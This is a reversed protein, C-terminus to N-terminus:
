LVGLTKISRAYKSLIKDVVINGTGEFAQKDFQIKFQDTNYSTAYRKYYELRGCAIDDTLLEAARVIDQPIMKYGSEVIITYDFTKPFGRYYYDIANTDAASIPIIISAGQNRNITGSYYQQIATGDATIEFTREYNDPNAADYVLTNNEYVKLIKKADIWLPLYDAGVGSTEIVQKRYYFGDDIVSDIIARAIEENRAYDAIESKTTGKTNPNVYPRVVSYYYENDYVQVEYEGDYKSPLDVNLIGDADSTITATTFSLDVMDRVIVPYDTSAEDVQIDVTTDYPPVRLVEM